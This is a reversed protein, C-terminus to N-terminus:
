IQKTVLSDEDNVPGRDGLDAIVSVFPLLEELQGEGAVLM